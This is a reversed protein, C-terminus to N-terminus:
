EPRATARGAEVALWTWGALYCLGGIPTIAGLWKIGTLAMLYLSGAFFVTGALFLWGARPVRLVAALLAAVAHLQHYHNGTQWLKEVPEPLKLAHAAFAGLAVGLFGFVAAAILLPRTPM